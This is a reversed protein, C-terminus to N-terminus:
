VASRGNGGFMAWGFQLLMNIGQPAHELAGFEAEFRAKFLGHAHFLKPSILPVFAFEKFITFFREFYFEDEDGEMMDCLEVESQNLVAEVITGDCCKYISLRTGHTGIANLEAAAECRTRLTGCSTASCLRMMTTTGLADGDIRVIPLISKFDEMFM